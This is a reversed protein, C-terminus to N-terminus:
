LRVKKGIKHATCVLSNRRCIEWQGQICGLIGQKLSSSIGRLKEVDGNYKKMAARFEFSCRREVFQSLVSKNKTKQAITRDKGTCGDSLVGARINRGVSKTIHRTCDGKETEIDRSAMVEKMGKFLSSDGDTVLTSVRLPGDDGVIQTAMAKGLQYESNGMPQNSPFDKGCGEQHDKSSKCSCVKSRTCFAIPISELGPEGPFCCAWSQTAPQIYTFKGKTPNNNAADAQAVIQPQAENGDSNRLNMVTKVLDRNQKLQQDAITEFADCVKNATRQMVSASPSPTDMASFIERIASNGIPQKTM